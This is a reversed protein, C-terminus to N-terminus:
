YKLIIKGILNKANISKEDSSSKRNDGRVLIRMGLIKYVRKIKLITGSKFVIVEGVKPKIWNFTLVHDGESFAPEMSRDCVVFRSFPFLKINSLFFM